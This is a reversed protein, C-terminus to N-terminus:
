GWNRRCRAQPCRSPHARRRLPQRASRAPPRASSRVACRREFPTRLPICRYAVTHFPMHRDTVTHSPMHRDGQGVSGDLSPGERRRQAERGSPLLRLQAREPAPDGRARAAVADAPSPGSDPRAQGEREQPPGNQQWLRTFAAQENSGHDQAWWARVLARGHADNRVLIFGTNVLHRVDVDQSLWASTHPSRAMLASLDLDFGVVALDADVWAIGKCESCWGGPELAKLMVGLKTWRIDRLELWKGASLEDELVMVHEHTEAWAANVFQAYPAYGARLKADYFSVVGIKGSMDGQNAAVNEALVQRLCDDLEPGGAESADCCTGAGRHVSFATEPQEGATAVQATLLLAALMMAARAWPELM